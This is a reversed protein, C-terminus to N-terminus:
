FVAAAVESCTAAQDEQTLTETREWGYGNGSATRDM